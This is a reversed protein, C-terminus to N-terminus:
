PTPAPEATPVAPAAPPAAEAPAEAPATKLEPTPEVTPEVIPEVTPTSSPSPSAPPRFDFQGGINLGVSGVVYNPSGITVGKLAGVSGVAFGVEPHVVLAGWKVRLGALLGPAVGPGTESNFGPVVRAGGTLAVGDALPVEGLLQLPITLQGVSTSGAVLSPLVAIRAGGTVTLAVDDDRKPDGLLQIGASVEPLVQGDVRVQVDVRDVVGFRASVEPVVATDLDDGYGVQGQV